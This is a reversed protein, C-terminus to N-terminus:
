RSPFIFRYESRNWTLPPANAIAFSSSPGFGGPPRPMAAKDSPATTNETTMVASIQNHPALMRFVCPALNNRGTPWAMRRM